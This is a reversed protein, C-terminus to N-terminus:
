PADALHHLRVVRNLVSEALKLRSMSPPQIEGPWPHRFARFDDFFGRPGRRSTSSSLPRMPGHPGTAASLTHLRQKEFTSGRRRRWTEPTRMNWRSSRTVVTKAFRMDFLCGAWICAANAPSCSSEQLGRRTWIVQRTQVSPFSGCASGSQIFNHCGKSIASPRGGKRCL